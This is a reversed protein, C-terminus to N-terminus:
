RWFVFWPRNLDRSAKAYENECNRVIWLATQKEDNARELQGTQADFGAVWAGITNDSPIAAPPVDAALQPPIRSACAYPTTVTHRASVCAGLGLMALLALPIALIRHLRYRM